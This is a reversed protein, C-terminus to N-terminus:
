DRDAMVLALLGLESVTLKKNKYKNLWEETNLLAGKKKLNEITDYFLNEQWKEKFEVIQNDPMNDAGKDFNINTLYKGLMGKLQPYYKLPDVATDKNKVQSKFLLGGEHIEFHLHPGTSSGTNGSYAVIQGKTVKSGIKQKSLERLHAYVSHLGNKYKIVLYYGFGVTPGGNNVKNITIEGDEIAVLPTGQPVAIDIGRHMDKKKTIPHVREGFASSFKCKSLNQKEIPFLM